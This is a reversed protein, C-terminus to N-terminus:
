FSGGSLCCLSSFVFYSNNFFYVWTIWFNNTMIIKSGLCTQAGYTWPIRTPIHAVYFCWDNGYTPLLCTLLLVHPALEGWEGRNERRMAPRKWRKWGTLFQPPAKINLLKLSRQLLCLCSFISMVRIGNLTHAIPNWPLFKACGIMFLQM